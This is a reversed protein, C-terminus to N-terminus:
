KERIISAEYKNKSLYCRQDVFKWVLEIFRNKPVMILSDGWIPKLFWPCSLFQRVQIWRKRIVEMGGM